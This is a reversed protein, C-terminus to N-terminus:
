TKAAKLSESSSGAMKSRVCGCESPFFPPSNSSSYCGCRQTLRRKTRPYLCTSVTMFGASSKGNRSKNLALGLTFKVFVTLHLWFQLCSLSTSPHPCDCMTVCAAAQNIQLPLLELLPQNVDVALVQRHWAAREEQM